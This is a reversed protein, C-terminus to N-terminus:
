PSLSALVEELSVVRAIERGLYRLTVEHHEADPSAVCERPIVVELDRQYADIAAMRICAHTNVGALILTTADLEALLADLATDYFASYRKKVLEFDEATRRLEALIQCGPTGAITMRIGQRRMALFADALDDRFAQRVWIIPIGSARARATLTNIRTTLAGRATRLPGDRFFDELMDIVLVAVRQAM